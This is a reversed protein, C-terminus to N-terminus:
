KLIKITGMLFVDNKKFKLGLKNNIPVSM